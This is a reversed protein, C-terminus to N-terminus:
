TDQRDKTRPAAHVGLVTGVLVIITAIEAARGHLIRAALLQSCVGVSTVFTKRAFPEAAGWAETLARWARVVDM